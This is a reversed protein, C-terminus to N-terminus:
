GEAGIRVPQEELGDSVSRFRVFRLGPLGKPKRASVRYGLAEALHSARRLLSVPIVVDVPSLDQRLQQWIIGLQFGHEFEDSDGLLHTTVASDGTLM